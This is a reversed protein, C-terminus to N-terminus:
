AVILFDDLCKYLYRRRYPQENGRSGGQGHFASGLLAPQLLGPGSPAAKGPLGHSPTPAIGAVGKASRRQKKPTSPFFVIEDWVCAGVFM